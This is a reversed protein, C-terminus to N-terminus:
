LDVRATRFSERGVQDVAHTAPHASRKVIEPKNLEAIILTALSGAMLLALLLVVWIWPRDHLWKKM